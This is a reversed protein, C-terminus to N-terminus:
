RTRATWEFRRLHWDAETRYAIVGRTGQTAAMVRFVPSPDLSVAESARRGQPTLTMVLARAEGADIASPGDISTFLAVEGLPLLDTMTGTRRNFELGFENAGIPACPPQWPADHAESGDWHMTRVYSCPGNSETFDLWVVEDGLVVAAPLPTGVIGPPRRTGVILAPAISVGGSFREWTSPPDTALSVSPAALVALDDGRAVLQAANM